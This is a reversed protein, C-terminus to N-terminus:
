FNVKLGVGWEAGRSFTREIIGFSPIDAVGTMIIEEDTINRGFASISWNTHENEYVAKLNLVGVDDQILQPTNIADNAYETRYNYDARLMLEGLNKIPTQYMVGISIDWEPTDVFKDNTSVPITINEFDTLGIEKYEAKTYGVGLDLSLSDTARLHAEIEFGKIEGKAANRTQPAIQQFVVLQIDDYEAFYASLNLRLRNDFATSKFGAEYTSVTEERFPRLSNTPAIYRGTYGGSKFGQAYSAYVMLNKDLQYDLGIRPSLKNFSTEDDPDSVVLVDIDAFKQGVRVYKNEHTYRAGFSARIRDTISFSLHGFAAYSQQDIESMGNISLPVGFLPNPVGSIPNEQVTYLDPAIPVFIDDEGKEDFYYVGFLWDLKNNFSMGSLTIEQSFERHSMDNITHILTIPSGDPDRGFFSEFSRYGTISKLDLNEFQHEITLSAGWIDHRNINPGTAYTHYPDETQFREGYPVGAGFGPVFNTPAVFANYLGSIASENEGVIIISSPASSGRSRTYDAKLDVVTNPSAMWRLAVRATNTYQSGLKDGIILRDAYGDKNFSGLSILSWLNQTIPINLNVKADAREYNGFTVEASGEFEDTPVKSSLLIAGGITNKGFLTGQPGRLVEIQKLDIVDLVSGVSRAINVGDLYIGVGPDKTLIYDSQGIGRVYVSASNMSGSIAASQDFSLNPAFADIDSIIETSRQSLQESSLATISLPTTQLSEERRRATVLIEGVEDHASVSAGSTQSYAFTLGVSNALALGVCFLCAPKIKRKTSLGGWGLLM